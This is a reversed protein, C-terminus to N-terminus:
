AHHIVPTSYAAPTRPPALLILDTIFRSNYTGM